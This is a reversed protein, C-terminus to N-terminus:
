WRAHRLLNERHLAREMLEIANEIDTAGRIIASSDGFPDCQVIQRIPL